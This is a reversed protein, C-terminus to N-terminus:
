RNSNFTPNRNSLDVNGDFILETAGTRANGVVRFEGPQADFEVYNNGRGRSIGLAEEVDRPSGTRGQARVTFVSNQDSARIVRDAQIGRIGKANTFHRVRVLGRGLLAGPPVMGRLAIEQLIGEGNEALEPLVVSALKLSAFLFEEGPGSLGLNWMHDARAKATKGMEELQARLPHDQWSVTLPDFHTGTNALGSLGYAVFSLATKEGESRKSTEQGGGSSTTTTEPKQTGGSDSKPAERPPQSTGGASTSPKEARASNGTNGTTSTSTRRDDGGTGPGPGASTGTGLQFRCGGVTGLEIADYGSPDVYRVPNNHVYLYRNVGQSSARALPDPSVFRRLRPDYLRGKMNTIGFEAEEEHGTFGRTIGTEAGTWPAGEEDARSGFPEYYRHELLAGKTDTVIATSGLHDGHIYVVQESPMPLERRTVQAVLEGEAHVYFVHDTAEVSAAPPKAWRKEYLGGMYLTSETASQKSARRGAADYAFQTTSGLRAISKPLDFNTYQITRGGGSVQRGRLDYGYTDPGASVVAHPGAGGSGHGFTTSGWAGATGQVATLNGLFDYVFTNRTRESGAASVSWSTLQGLSDYGFSESRINVDDQKAKLNSNKFYDFNLRELEGGSTAPTSTVQSRLRGVGDFSRVTQLGDGSLRNTVRHRQDRAVANWYVKSTSRVDYITDLFDNQYGYRVGFRATGAIEPYDVGALRGFGDYSMSIRATSGALTMREESARGLSDYDYETYTGDPSTMSALSGLGHPRTDWVFSTNGDGSQKLIVRGLSDLKSSDIRGGPDKSSTLEDFGNLTYIWAGADPDNLSTRRGLSDYGIVTEFGGPDVISRMLNHAGYTFHTALERPGGEAELWVSVKNSTLGNPTREIRRTNGEPDAVTTNLREHHIQTTNGEPDTRRILRDVDDYELLSSGNDESAGTTVPETVVALRGLSDYLYNTYVTDGGFTRQVLMRLRGNEDIHEAELGGAASTKTITFPSEPTSGYAVAVNGGDAPLVSRVRAFGDYQTKDTSGNADYSQVLVGLASQYWLWSEHGVANTFHQPFTGQPDYDVRTSRTEDGSGNYATEMSARVLGFADRVLETVHQSVASGVRTTSLLFGLSDYAHKLTRPEVGGIVKRTSSDIYSSTEQNAPVSVVTAETPLSVLWRLLWAGQAQHAYKITTLRSTGGHVWESAQTVNGFGDYDWDLDVTRYADRPPCPQNICSLGIVEDFDQITQHDLRTTFSGNGVDQFVYESNAISGVRNYEVTPPNQLLKTFSETRRSLGLFPYVKAGSTLVKRTTDFSTTTVRDRRGDRAEVRSFGLFGHGEMDSRADYYFYSTPWTGYKDTRSWVSAVELGVRPCSVPYGCGTTAYSHVKPDSIFSYEIDETGGIGDTVRIIRRQDSGQRRLITFEGLLNVQTIDLSGDGDIDVLQHNRWHNLTPLSGSAGAGTFGGAGDFMDLPTWSLNVGDSMLMAAGNSTSTPNAEGEFYLIDEYGDGNLDGIRRSGNAPNWSIGTLAVYPTAFGRGTNIAVYWSEGQPLSVADRLGDGNVDMMEWGASAQTDLNLPTVAEVAGDKTLSVGAYAGSIEAQFELRGDGDSDVVTGQKAYVGTLVTPSSALAGQLNRRAAFRRLGQGNEVLPYPYIFDPLGDGSLDAFYAPRGPDSEVGAPVNVTTSPVAVLNQGAGNWDYLQYSLRDQRVMIETAGDGDFDAPVSSELIDIPFSGGVAAPQGWCFRSGTSACADDSAGARLLSIGYGARYYLIDARANGDVDLVFLSSNRMDQTIPPAITEYPTAGLEPTWDFHTPKYCVGDADCRTVDSVLSPKRGTRQMYTIQYFWRKSGYDWTPTTVSAGVPATDAVYVVINKLRKSSRLRVGSLYSDMIDNRAEYEFAIRRSPSSVEATAGEVSRALFTYRIEKILAEVSGDSQFSSYLFEMANGARDEERSLKWALTVDREDSVPPVSSPSPILFGGLQRTRGKIAASGGYRRIRGSPLYVAFGEPETAGPSKLLVVKTAGDGMTQYTTGNEGHVGATPVLRAGDLCFSDVGDFRVARTQGDLALNKPCRTIESLGALAFGVGLPGNRGRSSYTLALEPAMGARGAPVDIPIQYGYGGDHGVNGSGPLAGPTALPGGGGGGVATPVLPNSPAQIPPAESGTPNHWESDTLRVAGAPVPSGPFSCLHSVCELGSQCDYNQACSSGAASRCANKAGCDSFDTCDTLGDGDNDVGDSCSVESTAFTCSPGCPGSAGPDCQEGSQLTGNGCNCSPDAVCTTTPAAVQRPEGLGAFVEGQGGFQGGVRMRARAQNRTGTATWTGNGTAAGSLTVKGAVTEFTFRLVAGREWKIEPSDFSVWGFNRIKLTVVGATSRVLAIGPKSTGEFGFLTYEWDTRMERSAYIPQVDVQWTGSTMWTPVNAAEFILTDAARQVTTYNSPIYSTAFPQQQEYQAGWVYFDPSQMASMSATPWGAVHSFSFTSASGTATNVPLEYRKFPSSLQWSATAMIENAQSLLFPRVQTLTTSTSSRKQLYVSYTSRGANVSVTGAPSRAPGSPSALLEATMRHLPTYAFADVSMSMPNAASAVWSPKDWAESDLVLNTSTGEFLALRSGTTNMWRLENPRSAALVEDGYWLHAYTAASARTFVGSAYRLTALSPPTAAQGVICSHGCTDGACDRCPGGCDIGQEDEDKLGNECQPKRCTSNIFVLGKACYYDDVGWGGVQGRCAPEDACDELDECDKMGDHDDDGNNTCNNEVGNDVLGDCDEDVGNRSIEPMAYSANPVCAPFWEATPKCVQTISKLCIGFGCSFTRLIGENTSGDCDNDVNDCIETQPAGPTCAGTVVGNVCSTSGTATRACAGVGCSSAPSSVYGEDIRGDCDGDIADCIGDGVNPPAGPTCNTVTGNACSSMMTRACAGTGCSYSQGVYGEDTRSDCDGDLGNCINDGANNPSGASCGVVAGNVCQYTTSRFCVGSGCSVAAGVYNDDSTGDCDDDIGDCDNDPPNTGSACKAVRSDLSFLFGQYRTQCYSGDCGWVQTNLGTIMLSDVVNLQGSTSYLGTVVNDLGERRIDVFQLVLSDSGSKEIAISTVTKLFSLGQEYPDFEYTANTTSLTGQPLTVIDILGDHVIRLRVEDNTGSGAATATRLRFWTAEGDWDGRPMKRTDVLVTKNTYRVRPSQPEYYPNLLPSNLTVYGYGEVQVTKESLNRTTDLYNDGDWIRQGNWLLQVRNYCLDNTGIKEFTVAELQDPRGLGTPWNFRFTNNAYGQFGGSPTILLRAVQGNSQLYM